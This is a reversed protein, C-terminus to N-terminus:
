QESLKCIYYNKDTCKVDNWSSGRGWNIQACDENLYNNPEGRSWAKYNVPTGDIWVHKGEKNKDGLGIFPFM